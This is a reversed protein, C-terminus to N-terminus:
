PLAPKLRFRTAAMCSGHRRNRVFVFLETHRRRLQVVTRCDTGRSVYELSYLFPDKSPIHAVHLEIAM